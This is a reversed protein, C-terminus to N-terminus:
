NNCYFDRSCDKELEGRQGKQTQIVWSCVQVPSLIMMMMTVTMMRMIVMMMILMRIIMMMNFVLLLTLTLTLTLAVLLPNKCVAQAQVQGPIGPFRESLQLHYSPSPPSSSSSFSSSSVLSTKNILIIAPLSLLLLFPHIKEEAPSHHANLSTSSSLPWSSSWTYCIVTKLLCELLSILMVIVNTWHQPQRQMQYRGPIGFLLDRRNPWLKMATCCSIMFLAAAGDEFIKVM